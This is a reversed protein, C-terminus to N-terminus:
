ARVAIRREVAVRLIRRQQSALHSACDGCCEDERAHEGDGGYGEGPRHHLLGGGAPRAMVGLGPRELGHELNGEELAGAVRVAAVGQRGLEHGLEGCLLAALDEHGPRELLERPLVDDVHDATPGLAVADLQAEPDALLDVHEVGGTAGDEHDPGAAAAGLAALPRAASGPWAPGSRATLSTVM